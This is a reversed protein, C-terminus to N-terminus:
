ASAIRQRRVKLRQLRAARHKAEEMRQHSDTPRHHPPATTPRPPAYRVVLHLCLRPYVCVYVCVSARVYM